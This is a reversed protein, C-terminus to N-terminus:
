KTKPIIFTTAEIIKNSSPRYIIVKRALGYVLIQDGNQADAFFIENALKTKDLITIMAPQEDSPLEMLKRVKAVTEAIARDNAAMAESKELLPNNKKLQKQGYVYGGFGVACIAVVILLFLWLFKKNKIISNQNETM